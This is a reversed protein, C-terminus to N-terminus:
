ADGQTRTTLWDLNWTSLKLSAAAQAPGPPMTTLCAFLALWVGHRHSCEPPPPRVQSPACGPSPKM